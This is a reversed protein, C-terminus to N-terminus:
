ITSHVNYSILILIKFVSLLFPCLPFIKTSNSQVNFINFNCNECHFQTALINRSSIEETVEEHLSCRILSLYMKKNILDKVIQYEIHRSEKFNLNELNIFAFM